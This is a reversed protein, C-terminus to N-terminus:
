LGKWQPRSLGFLFAGLASSFEINYNFCNKGKKKSWKVILGTNKLRDIMSEVEIAVNTEYTVYVIMKDKM